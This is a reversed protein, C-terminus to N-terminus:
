RTYVVIEVRRSKSKSGSIPQFEGRGAAVLSEANVDNSILFRTVALARETSLQWNDKWGSKKIPDTDTHGIVWVEKGAHEQKIIKAIRKLRSKPESKLNTKGADFLVNSELTVTITGRTPDYVGGEKELGTKQRVVPKNIEAQLDRNCLQLQTQLQSITEDCRQSTEHASDFLAQLNELQANCAQYKEKWPQCGAGSLLVVVLGILVMWTMSRM